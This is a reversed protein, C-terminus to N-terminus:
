QLESEFITWEYFIDCNDAHVSFYIDQYLEVPDYKDDLLINKVNEMDTEIYEWAKEISTFNAVADEGSHDHMFVTYVKM